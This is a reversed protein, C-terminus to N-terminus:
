SYTATRYPSPSPFVIYVDRQGSAFGHDESVTTVVQLLM